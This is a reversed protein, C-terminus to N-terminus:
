RDHGIQSNDDRELSRKRLITGLFHHSIKRRKVTGLLIVSASLDGHSAHDYKRKAREMDEALLQEYSVPHLLGQRKKTNSQAAQLTEQGNATKITHPHKVVPVNQRHM